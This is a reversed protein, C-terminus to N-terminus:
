ATHINLRKNILRKNEADDQTDYVREFRVIRITRIVFNIDKTEQRTFVKENRSKKPVNYLGLSRVNIRDFPNKELYGM